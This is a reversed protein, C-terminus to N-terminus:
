GFHSFSGNRNGYRASKGSCNGYGAFVPENPLNNSSTRYWVVNAASYYDAPPRCLRERRSFSGSNLRDDVEVPDFDAEWQANWNQHPIITETKTFAVESNLQLSTTALLEDVSGITVPAFAQIGTTTEVFSEFGLEALEAILVEAWQDRPQLDITVEIYDM